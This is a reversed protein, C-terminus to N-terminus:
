VVEPMKKGQALLIGIERLKGIIEEATHEKRPM